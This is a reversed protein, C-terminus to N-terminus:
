SSKQRLFPLRVVKIRCTNCINKNLFGKDVVVADKGFSIKNILNCQEFIATDSPRGDYRQSVFTILSSPAVNVM